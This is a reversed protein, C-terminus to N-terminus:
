QSNNVSASAVRKAFQAGARDYAEDLLPRLVTEVTTESPSVVSVWGAWGYVPHPLLEDVTTFDHGTDVVDGKPPREPRAGFLRRYTAESVGFNVRWVDDRYLHSASDNESDRDKVTVFYTGRPLRGGPNYFLGQEGWADDLVVDDYREEVYRLFDTPNM